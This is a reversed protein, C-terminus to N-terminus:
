KSSAEAREDARHGSLIGEMGINGEHCAYEFIPDESGMLPIMATWPRTWTTPDTLTVEYNLTTPGVRTLREVMHLSDSAGRINTKPSYNTTEIVLTDGEWHGRSDGHLQRVGEDLHPQDTIPIVRADHIMEHVIVVHDANQFVQYYSNYGAGLRPVGFSVCRESQPRDTYTDAPHDRRYAGAERRREQAEPTVDPIRGNPPDIVLSTRNTFDRDAIWFQNYNGTTPDYSTAEIGEIAALVLQDGFLADGDGVADAAAVQLAALEEDTLTDKDAWAEPRELPTVNNNAWVGQLDPHGDPTRPLTWAGTAQGATAAPVMLGVVAVTMVLCSLTGLRHRM